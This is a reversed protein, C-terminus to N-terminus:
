SIQLAVLKAFTEKRIHIKLNKMVIKYIWATVGSVVSVLCHM